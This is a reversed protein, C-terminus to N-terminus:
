APPVAAAAGSGAAGGAGPGTGAPSAGAPTTGSGSGTPAAAPPAPLPAAPAPATPTTPATPATPAPDPGPATRPSGTDGTGSPSAPGQPGTEPANDGGDQDEGRQEPHRNRNRDAGRSGAFDPVYTNSGVGMQNTLDAGITAGRTGAATMASLGLAAVGGVAAAAPGLAAGASSLGSGLGKSARASADGDTSREAQSRGHEDTSSAATSTSKESSGSLVGQLGGQAALGARMAAGSSTGPDVFALLKFLVLPSFCAICILFVGPIATGLTQGLGDAEDLVVGSTLSVGLGVVLAMLVSTFAAAHFWRVSKWFWDNGRAVLGAASVPATAVLVLLAAARALMVLFHGIGGLWLFLGMFGLVTALVGDTLDEVSLTIEGLPEWASWAPIGLLGQLLAGSLGATATIVLAAYSIWAFWALVFQGLGVLVQALDEGRRRFAVIGLRVFLMAGLLTLAIWFTIAYANGLPGGETVDPTMVHDVIGLVFKLFWLGASWIAFMVATWADAVLKGVAAQGLFEFPNPIM